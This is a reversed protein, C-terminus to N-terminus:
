NQKNSKILIKRKRIKVMFDLESTNNKKNDDISKLYLTKKKYFM